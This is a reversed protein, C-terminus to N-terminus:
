GQDPQFKFSHFQLLGLPEPIIQMDHFMNREERSLVDGECPAESKKQQVSKADPEQPPASKEVCTPPTTPASDACSQEHGEKHAQHGLESGERIITAKSGVRISFDAEIGQEEDVDKQVKQKNQDHDDWAAKQVPSAVVKQRTLFIKSRQWASSRNAKKPRPPEQVDLPVVRSFQTTSGDDKVEISSSCGM